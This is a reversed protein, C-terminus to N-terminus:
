TVPANSFDGRREAISIDVGRQWHRLRERVSYEYEPMHMIAAAFGGGSVGMSYSNNRRGSGGSSGGTAAGSAGAGEDDGRTRPLSGGRSLEMSERRVSALISSTQEDFYLGCHRMEELLALMGQLDGRRRWYIDLLENYFPTSIGLVYSELSLEKIRPLLNFVYPSPLHFATDLRRLALLLYAPYLPGYIYLSMRESSIPPPAGPSNTTTDNDLNVDDILIKDSNDPAEPTETIVTDSKSQALAAAEAEADAEAQKQKKTKRGKTPAAPSSAPAPVPEPTSALGFRAPFTFVEKELVAWLEHDTKAETIAREVRRREPLRKAEVEITRMFSAAPSKWGEDEEAEVAAGKESGVSGARTTATRPEEPDFANLARSAAARLEPPFRLLAKSRDRAAGALLAPAAIASSRSQGVDYAAQQMILMASRGAITSAPKTDADERISPQLGRARIDAFIREFVQRESPTITGRPAAHSNSPDQELPIDAEALEHEFPIESTARLRRPTTHLARLTATSPRSRRVRLITRTM